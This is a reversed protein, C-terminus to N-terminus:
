VYDVECLTIKDKRNYNKHKPNNWGIMTAVTITTGEHLIYNIFIDNDSADKGKAKFYTNLNVMKVLFEHFKAHDPVLKSYIRIPNFKFYEIKGWLDNSLHTLHKVGAM